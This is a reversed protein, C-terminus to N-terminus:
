YLENTKGTMNYKPPIVIHHQGKADLCHARAEQDSNYFGLDIKKGDRIVSAAFKNNKNSFFPRKLNEKLNTNKYETLELNEISIDAHNKNKLRVVGMGLNGHFWQWVLRHASYAICNISIVRYGTKPHISGAISGKNRGGMGQKRILNKGDYDFMYKLIKQSPLTKINM